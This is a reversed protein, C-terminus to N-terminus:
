YMLDYVDWLTLEQNIGDELGKHREKVRDLHAENFLIYERGDEMAVFLKKATNEDAEDADPCFIGLKIHDIHAMKLQDQVCELGAVLGHKSAQYSPNHGTGFLLGEISATALVNAKTKQKMMIPLVEKLYYIPGMLNVGIVRDWDEKNTTAIDDSVTAEAGLFLVDIAGYEDMCAKVSEKVDEYFSLDKHIGVVSVDLGKLESVLADLADRDTDVLALKMGKDAAEKAFAKGYGKGAGTILAVKGKYDEASAGEVPVHFAKEIARHRLDLKEMFKPHTQVYLQNEEIAKFLRFGVDDIPMGTQISVSLFKMLGKYMDSKYFPHDDDHFREPRHRETHHFDTQIFGPCFVSIGIYDIGNNKLYTKVNEALVLTAHKTASYTLGTASGHLIGAISSVEMIHAPTKQKIMIPLVEMLMYAHGSTNVAVGWDFDAVPMHVVDGLPCVGANDYLVDIRGFKDMVEKVTRKVEEYVSLDATVTMVDSVGLQRLLVKVGFVDSEDIDVLAVKMGRRAAEIAFTKGFGNGAGSVLAVKESFGKM